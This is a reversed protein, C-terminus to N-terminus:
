ICIIIDALLAMIRMLLLQLDKPLQVHLIKEALCEPALRGEGYAPIQAKAPGLM